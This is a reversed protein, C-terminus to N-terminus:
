TSRCCRRCSADSIWPCPSAAVRSWRITWAESVVGGVAVPSRRLTGGSRHQRGQVSLREGYGGGCDVLWLGGSNRFFDAGGHLNGDGGHQDEM